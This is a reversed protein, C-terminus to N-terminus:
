YHFGLNRDYIIIACFDDINSQDEDSPEFTDDEFNDKTKLADRDSAQDRKM